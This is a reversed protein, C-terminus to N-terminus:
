SVYQRKDSCFRAFAFGKVDWRHMHRKIFDFLGLDLGNSENTEIIIETKTQIRQTFPVPVRVMIISNERTFEAAFSIGSVCVEFGM